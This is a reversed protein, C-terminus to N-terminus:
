VRSVFFEVADINAAELQRIVTSYTLLSAAERIKAPPVSARFSDFKERYSYGTYAPPEMAELLKDWFSSRKLLRRKAAAEVPLVIRATHGLLTIRTCREPRFPTSPDPDPFTALIPALEAAALELSPWRYRSLGHVVSGRRLLDLIRTPDKGASGLVVDILERLELDQVVVPTMAIM